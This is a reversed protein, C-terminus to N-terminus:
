DSMRALSEDLTTDINLIMDLKMLMIVDLLERRIGSLRLEGQSKCIKMHMGMMVGLIASSIERVDTFDIIFRPKGQEQALLAEFKENMQEVVLRDSVDQTFHIVHIGTITRIEVTPNDGNPLHM